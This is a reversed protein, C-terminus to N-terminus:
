VKIEAGQKALNDAMDNGYWDRYELSSKDKPEIKHARIHKFVIKYKDVYSKIRKIIELNKIPKNKGKVNRQWNNKQWSNSWVTICNIMYESDTCIIIKGNDYDDNTIIEIARLCATLEAVNNSAKGDPLKESVNRIDNNGFFIGIGGYCNRKGNNIASGDTYVIIDSKQEIGSVTNEDFLDINTDIKKENDINETIKFFNNPQKVVKFYNRIDM